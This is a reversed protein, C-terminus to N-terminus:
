SKNLYLKIIDNKKIKVIIQELEKGLKNLTLSLEQIDNSIDVLRMNILGIYEDLDKAFNKRM